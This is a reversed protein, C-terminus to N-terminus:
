DQPLGVFSREAYFPRDVADQSPGVPSRSPRQCPAVAILLSTPVFINFVVYHLNHSILILICSLPCYLWTFLATIKTQQPQAAGAFANAMDSRPTHRGDMLSDYVAPLIM